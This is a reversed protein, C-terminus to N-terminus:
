KADGNEMKFLKEEINFLKYNKGAKDRYGKHNKIQELVEKNRERMQKGIEKLEEVPYKKLQNDMMFLLSNVAEDLTKCKKVQGSSSYVLINSIPNAKTSTNVNGRATGAGKGEDDEESALGVIMSIGYRKAYTIASGLGQMDRKNIILPLSTKFTGGTEHMLLTDVFHDGNEQTTLSHIYSFGNDVLPKRIVEYVSALDAYKGFAGKDDKKAHKLDKQVKSLAKIHDTSM